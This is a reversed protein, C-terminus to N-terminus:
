TDSVMLRRRMADSWSSTAADYAAARAQRQREREAEADVEAQFRAAEVPDKRALDEARRREMDKISKARNDTPADAVYQYMTAGTTYAEKIDTFQTDSGFAATFNDSAGGIEVGGPAYLTERSRTEMVPAGRVREHFVSAFTDSSVKGSKLRLDIAPGAGADSKMWSGYGADRDPDPPRNEEFLRNFAAMDLKKASLKVPPQASVPPTYTTTVPPLSAVPPASPEVIDTITISPIDSMTTSAGASFRPNFRVLIKEVYKYARNVEDFAEKSGGKDPHARLSARKYAARLREQTITDDPGIDLTDLCDQFYDHAKANAHVTIAKTPTTYMINRSATTAYPFSSTSGHQHATLWAAVTDYVGAVRANTVMDPSRLVQEIMRARVTNSELACIESWITSAAVGM